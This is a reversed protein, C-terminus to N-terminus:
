LLDHLGIPNETGCAFCNYGILKPINKLDDKM